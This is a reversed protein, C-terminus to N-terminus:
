HSVIKWNILSRFTEMPAHTVIGSWVFNSVDAYVCIRLLSQHPSLTVQNQLLGKCILLASEYVFSIWRPFNYALFSVIKVGVWLTRSRNSLVSYIDFSTLTTSQEIEWEDCQVYIKNLRAAQLLHIIKEWIKWAASISALMRVALLMLVGSFRLHFFAKM